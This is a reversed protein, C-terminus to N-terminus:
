IQNFGLLFDRFLPKLIKVMKPNKAGPTELVPNEPEPARSISGLTEPFHNESEM